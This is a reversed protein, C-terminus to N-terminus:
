DPDEASSDQTDGATDRSKLYEEWAAKIVCCEPNMDWEIHRLLTEEPTLGDPGVVPEFDEPRPPFWRWRIARYPAWLRWELWQYFPRIRLWLGWGGRLLPLTSAAQSRGRSPSPEEQVQPEWNDSYPSGPGSSTVLLQPAVRCLWSRHRGTGSLGRVEGMCAQPYFKSLTDFLSM